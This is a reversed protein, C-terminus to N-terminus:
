RRCEKVIVKINTHRSDFIKEAINENEKRWHVYMEESYLYHVTYSCKQNEAVQSTVVHSIPNRPGFQSTPLYATINNFIANHHVKILVLM